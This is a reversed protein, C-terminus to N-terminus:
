FYIQNGKHDRWFVGHVTEYLNSVLGQAITEWLTLKLNAVTKTTFLRSYETSQQVTVDSWVIKINNWQM